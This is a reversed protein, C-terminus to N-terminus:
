WGHAHHALQRTLLKQGDRFGRVGDYKESVWYHALAVGPRYVNALMLAPKADQAHAVPAIPSAAHGLVALALMVTSCKLYSRVGTNM